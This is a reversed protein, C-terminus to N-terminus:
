ADTDAEQAAIARNCAGVFGEPVVDARAIVEEIAERLWDPGLRPTLWGAAHVIEDQEALADLATEVADASLPGHAVLALRLQLARVTYHDRTNEVTRFRLFTRCREYAYQREGNKGGSEDQTSM